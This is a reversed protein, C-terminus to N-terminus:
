EGAKNLSADFAGHRSDRSELERVSFAPKWAGGVHGTRDRTICVNQKRFMLEGGHVTEEGDLFRRGTREGFMCEEWHSRVRKVAAM